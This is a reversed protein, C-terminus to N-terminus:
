APGPDRPRTVSDVSKRPEAAHGPFPPGVDRDHEEFEDRGVGRGLLQVALVDSEHVPVALGLRALLGLSPTPLLPTDVLRRARDEDSWVEQLDDVDRRHEVVVEGARGVEVAAM